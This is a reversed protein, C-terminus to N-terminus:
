GTGLKAKHSSLSAGITVNRALAVTSLTVACSFDGRVLREALEVGLRDARVALPVPIALRAAPQAFDFSATLTISRAVSLFAGGKSM